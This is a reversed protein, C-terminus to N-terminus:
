GDKRDRLSLDFVYKIRTSLMDLIFAIEYPLLTSKNIADVVTNHFDALKDKEKDTCVKM